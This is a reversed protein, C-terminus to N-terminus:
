MAITGFGEAFSRPRGAPAAPSTGPANTSGTSKAVAQAMLQQQSQAARSPMVTDRLVHTVALGLATQPDHGEDMFSKAKAAIAPQHETFEPLAKYPALVKTMRNHAAETAERHREQALHQRERQQLPQVLQGVDRLIQQRNWEAWKAQQPASMFPTGDPGQFDAQPEQDEVPAQGRRAGLTRAAIAAVQPGYDPHVSFEQLLQTMTGIPDAQFRNGLEVHAGYQQQFRQGVEAETKLRANKLASEHRDFPIPGKPDATPVTADPAPDVTPPPATAAVPPPQGVPVPDSPDPPAPDGVEAMAQAFSTPRDASPSTVSAGASAPAEAVASSGGTTDEM